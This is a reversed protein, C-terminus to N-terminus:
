GDVPAADLVEWVSPEREVKVRKKRQPGDVVTFKLKVRGSNLLTLMREWKGEHSLYPSLRVAEFMTAAQLETLKAINAEWEPPLTDGVVEVPAYCGEGDVVYAKGGRREVRDIGFRFDSIGQATIPGTKTKRRVAM